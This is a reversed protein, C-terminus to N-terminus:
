AAQDMWDNIKDPMLWPWSFMAVLAFWFGTIGGTMPTGFVLNGAEYGFVIWLVFWCGAVIAVRDM